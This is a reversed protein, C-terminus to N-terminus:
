VPEWGGKGDPEWSPEERAARAFESTEYRSDIGKERILRATVTQAKTAANIASTVDKVSQHVVERLRKRLGRRGILYGILGSALILALIVFASPVVSSVYLAGLSLALGIPKM